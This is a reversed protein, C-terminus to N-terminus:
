GLCINEYSVIYTVIRPILSALSDFAINAATHFGFIYVFQEKRKM